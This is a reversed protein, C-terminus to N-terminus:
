KFSLSVDEPSYLEYGFCSIYRSSYQLFTKPLFLMYSHKRQPSSIIDAIFIVRKIKDKCDQDVQVCIRTWKCMKLLNKEDWFLTPVQITCNIKKLVNLTHFICKIHYFLTDGLRSYRSFDPFKLLGRSFRSYEPFKIDLVRSLPHRGEWFFPVAYRTHQLYQGITAM